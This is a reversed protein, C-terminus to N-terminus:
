CETSKLRSFRHIDFHERSLGLSDHTRNSYFRLLLTRIHFSSSRLVEITNMTEIQCLRSLNRISRHDVIDILFDNEIVFRDHSAEISIFGVESDIFASGGIYRIARQIEISQLSSYAFAESEVRTPRPNLAFSISL